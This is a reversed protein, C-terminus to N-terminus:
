PCDPAEASKETSRAAIRSSAGYHDTTQQKARHTQPRGDNTAPRQKCHGGHLGTTIYSCCATTKGCKSKTCRGMSFPCSLLRERRRCSCVGETYEVM